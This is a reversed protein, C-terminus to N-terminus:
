LNKAATPFQGFTVTCEQIADVFLMGLDGPWQMQQDEHTYRRNTPVNMSVLRNECNLTIMATPGTVEIEPTDTYGSWSQIPSPILSTGLGPTTYAALYISVPLGLKFDSLCDSLLSSDLGSLQVSLGKAEVVSSDSMPSIELLSGLGLWSQGSWIYTGLGTWLYVTTSAFTISVFLAPNFWTSQCATLMGSTLNRPM